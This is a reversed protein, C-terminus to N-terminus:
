VSGVSQSKSILFPMLLYLRFIQGFHMYCIHAFQTFKKPIYVEYLVKSLEMVIMYSCELFILSTAIVIMYSCELNKLSTAIVIM